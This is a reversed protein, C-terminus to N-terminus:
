SFCLNRSTKLSYNRTGAGVPRLLCAWPLARPIRIMRLASGQLPSVLVDKVERQTAGEPSFRNKADFGPRQGPSDQERGKLAQDRALGSPGACRNSRCGGFVDFLGFLVRSHFANM